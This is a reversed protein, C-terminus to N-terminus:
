RAPMNADSLWPWKGVAANVTVIKTEKEASPREELFITFLLGWYNKWVGEGGGGREGWDVKFMTAGGVSSICTYHGETAPSYYTTIHKTTKASAFGRYVASYFM